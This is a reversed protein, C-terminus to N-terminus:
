VARGPATETKDSGDYIFYSLDSNWKITKESATYAGYFAGGIGKEM